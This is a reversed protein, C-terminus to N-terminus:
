SDNKQVCYKFFNKRMLVSAVTRLFVLTYTKFHNLARAKILKLLREEGHNMGWFRSYSETYNVYKKANFIILM